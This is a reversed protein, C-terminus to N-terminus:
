ALLKPLAMEYVKRLEPVTTEICGAIAFTEAVVTGIRVLGIRHHAALAELAPVQKEPLSVVIRSQVEGFLVGASLDRKLDIAAGLTGHSNIAKEALAVALGGEATDHASRV